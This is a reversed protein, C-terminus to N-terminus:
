AEVIEVFVDRQAKLPDKCWDAFSADSFPDTTILEDGGGPSIIAEVVRKAVSQPTYKEMEVDRVMDTDIPGPHVTMVQTKQGALMVRLSQSLSHVAYKTPCYTALDPYSIFSAISAINVVMSSGAIANNRALVPAFALTMALTGLYNVEMETRAAKVTVAANNILLNVDGCSKAAAAIDAESTVDLKVPVIRGGSNAVLQTLSDPKRAGAYIKKAWAQQLAEVIALGIGRNAGTVLAVASTINMGPM